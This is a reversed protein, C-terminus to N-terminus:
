EERRSLESVTASLSPLSEQYDRQGQKGSWDAARSDTASRKVSVRPVIFGCLARNCATAPRDIYIPITAFFRARLAPLASLPKLPPRLLTRTTRNTGLTSRSPSVGM